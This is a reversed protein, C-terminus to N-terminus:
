QRLNLKGPSVELVISNNRNSHLEELLLMQKCNNATILWNWQVKECLVDALITGYNCFTQGIRTIEGVGQISEKAYM